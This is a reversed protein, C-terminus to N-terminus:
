REMEARKPATQKKPKQRPIANLRQMVSPRKEAKAVTQADAKMGNNVIGDIMGYDDEMSMEANKLPNDKAFEQTVERFGASDVYHYSVQDGLKLAIIDSVSLTHGMFAAPRETNFRTFLDNLHDNVSGQENPSLSTTYLPEYLPRDVSLGAAELRAFPEFRRDRTADGDRLQYIAFADTPNQAFAKEVKSELDQRAAIREQYASSQEWEDRGIGFMWSHNEVDERDIAMEARGDPHITYVTMDQDFFRRAHDEGLPLMDALGAYGSFAEQDASFDPIPYRSAPISFAADQKNPADQQAAPPTQAEQSKDLGRERMIERMHGEISNILTNATRTITELSARLEPLEKNASWSAIYGFSNEGTDIGFCQCVAYAVSEAEVERTNRDKVIKQEPHASQLFERLSIEMEGIFDLGDALEIYGHETLDVPSSTIITGAHNISVSNELVAPKGPDDDAGRLDYAFLGEPLDDRNVRENSFLALKGDFMVPQYVTEDIAEAPANPDHLTAHATEHIAASVTQVESMGARIRTLHAAPSFYGDQRPSLPVIEIPVPSSRRIAEMLIEFREVNGTLDSALTPIPKGYTQSVDFVPVPRFRPVTVEIETTLPKGDPGFVPKKTDPDLVTMKETRKYPVPAIIRIAKEGKKVHREFKDRWKNFGAVQTAHPMQSHILITNNVSYSHFHSMTRLYEAFRDSAFLDKIGQEIGEIIEKLRDQQRNRNQQANQEQQMNEDM